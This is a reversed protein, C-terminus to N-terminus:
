VIMLVKMVCKQTKYKDPFYVILFFFFLFSVVKDCIEQTKFQDPISDPVFFVDM